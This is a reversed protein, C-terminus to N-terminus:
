AVNYFYNLYRDYKRQLYLEADKYLWDMIAKGQRDGGFSLVKTIGNHCSADYIGGGSQSVFINIIEKAKYCFNETSTFTITTGGNEDKRKYISGDGDYYGRLFHNYLEPNLWDPFELILSKNQPMGLKELTKCMHSSFMLLRWMDKYHYGDGDDRKSCNIFELPKESGIEKRIDELLKKDGYELSISVTWKDKSNSGDAYFLGLIYAKNPTDINDFYTENLYYKRAFKKGDIIGGNEKIIKSILKHYYGYEFALKTTSVGNNYKNLIDIFENETLKNDYNTKLAPTICWYLDSWKINYKQMLQEITFGNKYDDIINNKINKDLM